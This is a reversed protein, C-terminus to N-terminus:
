FSERQVKGSGDGSSQQVSQEIPKIFREHLQGELAPGVQWLPSSEMSGNEMVRSGIKPLYTQEPHIRVEYVIPFPDRFTALFEEDHEFGPRLTRFRLGFSAFLLEWNPFGLGTAADCGLYAGDFYTTQTTRISAYGNNAWLFSKLPGGLLAVSVFEQINQLVSGDGEIHITRRTEANAIHAGLAGALAYGMSALSKNSLIRQGFKNEFAQYFVALASGASSPVIVDHEDSVSALAIYFDYPNHFGEHRSNVSESLPLSARVEQCFSVWEGYDRREGETTETLRRLTSMADATIFRDVKPNAKAAEEQDRDVQVVRASPAWLRWNFGTQRLGLRTGLAIVLDAHGVLVNSYRMGWTNPRGFYLDSRSDARDAGNYTTMFPLGLQALLEPLDSSWEVGGGLLLIPRQACQLLENLYELDDWNLADDNLEVSTRPEEVEGDPEFMQAQADLCWEIFVPGRADRASVVAEAVRRIDLDGAIRVRDVTIPAALAMGDVEQIGLQRLEGHALDSSKVQGGVVLLERKETFAGAMATISNTLGPGATVLAFARKGSAIQNFYEAAVVASHEHSFATCRFRTRAANLLHMINGGPLFFCDTYGMAKLFELFAEAQSRRTEFVTKSMLDSGLFARM